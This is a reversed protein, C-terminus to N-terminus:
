FGGIAGGGFGTKIEGHSNDKTIDITSLEQQMLDMKGVIVQLARRVIEEALLAGTSEVTFLFTDEVESISVISEEEHSKKLSEAYLVCEEDFAYLHEGNETVSVIGTAEDLEFVDRPCSDVFGRKEEMTLESLKNQNLKIIPVPKFTAVSCPSFKAHEKGIGKTIMGKIDLVQGKRMKVLRIGDDFSREEEGDNSYHVPFILDKYNKEELGLAAADPVLGNVFLQKSTVVWYEGRCEPSTDIELGPETQDVNYVRVGSNTVMPPRGNILWTNLVERQGTFEDTYEYKGFKVELHVDPMVPLDASTAMSQIQAVGAAGKKHRFPVLGLRHALFEDFLVTDNETVEVLDIALTEVEAIMVRRLANAISVDIGSVYFSMADQTILEVKVQPNRAGAM